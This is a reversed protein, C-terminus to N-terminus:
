SSEEIPADIGAFVGEIYALLNIELERYRIRQTNPTGGLWVGGQAFLQTSKFGVTEKSYFAFSCQAVLYLTPQKLLAYEIAEVTTSREEENYFGAGEGDNLFATQKPYGIDQVKSDARHFRAWERLSFEATIYEPKSM